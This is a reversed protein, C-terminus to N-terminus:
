YLIRCDEELLYWFGLGKGRWGSGRGGEFGFSLLFGDRLFRFIGYLYFM